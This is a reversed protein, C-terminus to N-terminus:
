DNYQMITILIFEGHSNIGQWLIYNGFSSNSLQLDANQSYLLSAAVSLNYLLLGRSTNKSFPARYIHQLDVPSCGHCITIILLLTYFLKISIVSRRPHERYIQQMNWLFVEPASRRIIIVITCIKNAIDIWLIYKASKKCKYVRLYLSLTINLKFKLKRSGFNFLWGQGSHTRQVIIM